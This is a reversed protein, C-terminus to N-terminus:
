SAHNAHNAHHSITSRGSPGALVDVELLCLAEVENELSLSTELLTCLSNAAESFRTTQLLVKAQELSKATLDVDAQLTPETDTM